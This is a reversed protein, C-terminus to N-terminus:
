EGIKSRAMGKVARSIPKTRESRSLLRADIPRTPQRLFAALEANFRATDEWFPAHGINDYLSLKATCNKCGSRWYLACV